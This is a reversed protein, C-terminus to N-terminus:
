VWRAHMPHPQAIAEAVYDPWPKRIPKVYVPRSNRHPGSQKVEIKMEAPFHVIHDLSAIMANSSMFGTLCCSVYSDSRSAERSLDAGTMHHDSLWERLFKAPTM